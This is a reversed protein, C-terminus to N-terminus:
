RLRFIRKQARPIVAYSGATTPSILRRFSEYCPNVYKFTGQMNLAEANGVDWSIGQEIAENILSFSHVYDQNQLAEAALLLTSDGQSPESPLVPLAGSISILV